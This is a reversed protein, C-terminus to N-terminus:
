GTSPDAHEDRQDKDPLYLPGKQGCGGLLLALALALLTLRTTRSNRMANPVDPSIEGTYPTATAFGL